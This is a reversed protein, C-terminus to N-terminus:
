GLDNSQKRKRSQGHNPVVGQAASKSVATDGPKKVPIAALEGEIERKWEALSPPRETFFNAVNLNLVSPDVFLGLHRGLDTLAARKDALKFRIRRVDRANEGRGDKFDEIIVEQIAAAQDRTIKAYDFIPEGDAGIRLYDQMNAFGIKALEGIVSEATVNYKLQAAVNAAIEREAAERTLEDLRQAVSNRQQLRTANGRDPKYGALRHAEFQSKGARLEQVFREEKPNRLAPM